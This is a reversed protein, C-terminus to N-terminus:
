FQFSHRSTARLYHHVHNITSSRLAMATDQCCHCSGEWWGFSNSAEFIAVTIPRQDAEATLLFLTCLRSRTGRAALMDPLLVSTAHGFLALLMGLEWAASHGVGFM